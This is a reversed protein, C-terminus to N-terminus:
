SDMHDVHDSHDMDYHTDHHIQEQSSESIKQQNLYIMYLTEM